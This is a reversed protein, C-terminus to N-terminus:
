PLEEAGVATRDCWDKDARELDRESKGAYRGSGEDIHWAWLGLAVAVATAILITWLYSM